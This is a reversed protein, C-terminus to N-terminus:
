PAWEWTDALQDGGLPIAAGSLLLKMRASDWAFLVRTRAPPMTAPYLMQFRRTKPEWQWFSSTGATLLVLRDGVHAMGHFANPGPGGEAPIDLNTWTRDDGDWAWLEDLAGGVSQSEGGHVFVLGSTPDFAMAHGRRARPWNSKLPYTRNEWSDQAPDYEWLDFLDGDGLTPHRYSGGFVVVRKRISDYAMAHGWRSPTPGANKQVWDNGGSWEWAESSSGGKDDIGGYLLVSKGTYALTHGYRRSPRRSGANQQQLLWSGGKGDDNQEWEWTTDSPASAGGFMVAKMRTADFALAGM